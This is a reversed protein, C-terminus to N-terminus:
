FGHYPKCQIRVFESVQIHSYGEWLSSWNPPCAPPTTSQSHLTIPLSLVRCVSCQSISTNRNSLWLVTSVATCDSDGNCYSFYAQSVLQVCSDVTGLDRTVITNDFSFSYLSYGRWLITSGPPCDPASSSQSHQVLFFNNSKTRYYKYANTRDDTGRLIQDDVYRRNAKNRHSEDKIDLDGKYETFFLKCVDCTPSGSPM